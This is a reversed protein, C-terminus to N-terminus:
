ICRREVSLLFPFDALFHMLVVMFAKFYYFKFCNFYYKTKFVTLCTKQLIQNNMMKDKKIFKNM